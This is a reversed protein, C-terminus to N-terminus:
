EILHEILSLRPDAEPHRERLFTYAKAFPMGWSMLVGLVVAPSRSRGVICHVLVKKDGDLLENVMEIAADVEYQNEDRRGDVIGFFHEGKFPSDLAVTVRVFEDPDAQQAEPWDSIYLNPLIQFM